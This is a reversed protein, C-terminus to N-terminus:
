RRDRASISSSATRCSAADSWAADQAVPERSAGHHPRGAEGRASRLDEHRAPDRRDPAPARGAIVTPAVHGKIDDYAEVGVQRGGIVLRADEGFAAAGIASDDQIRARDRGTGFGQPNAYDWTLGSLRPTHLLHSFSAAFTLAMSIVAVALTAGLITARASGRTPSRRGRSRWGRGPSSCPLCGRTLSSTERTARAAAGADVVPVCCTRGARWAAIVGPLLAGALVLASRRRAGADIAIGSGARSRSGPRVSRTALARGRGVAGRRRGHRRHAASPWLSGGCIM